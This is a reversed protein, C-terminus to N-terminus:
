LYKTLLCASYCKTPIKPLKCAYYCKTPIKTLQCAYYCKTPIQKNIPMIANHLYKKLQCFSQQFKKFIKLYDKHCVVTLILRLSYM